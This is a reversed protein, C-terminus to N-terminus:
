SSTCNTEMAEAILDTSKTFGRGEPAIEDENIDGRYNGPTWTKINNIIEEGSLQREFLEVHKNSIKELEKQRFMKLVSPSFKETQKTIV